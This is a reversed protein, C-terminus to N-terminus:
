YKPAGNGGGTRKPRLAQMAIVNRKGLLVGPSRDTQAYWPDPTTLLWDIMKITNETGYMKIVFKFNPIFREYEKDTWSCQFGMVEEFKAFYHDRVQVLPDIEKTM